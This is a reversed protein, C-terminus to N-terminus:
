NESRVPGTPTRIYEFVKIQPVSKSGLISVSQTSAHALKYDSLEELTVPSRQVETGIITFRGQKRSSIFANAETDNGFRKLDVIERFVSGDAMQRDEYQMVVCEYPAVSKGDFNFLRVVMSRYYEPYFVLLPVYKDDKKQWCIEYFDAEQRGGLNAISYFKDNPSALSSDIIIYKARWKALFGLAATQNQATFYMAEGLPNTSPNSSPIRHGIRTVWYGYDAWTVIGYTSDPYNFTQGPKPSEYLQYYYKADGFPEPTDKRVWDLVEIWANSPTALQGQAAGVAGLLATLAISILMIGVLVPVIIRRWQRNSRAATRNAKKRPLRPVQYKQNSFVQSAYAALWGTLLALCIAFYTDSRVMAFSALMIVVSWSAVYMYESKRERVCKYALIILGILGSYLVLGFQSWAAALTFKEGPFFLPKMEGVFNQQTKWTFIWSFGATATRFLDPFMIWAAGIAIVAVVALVVPFYAPKFRKAMMFNSLANIALPAAIMFALSLLTIKIRSLAIFILFAVLFCISIARSLYDTSYGRLHDSIFQILSYVFVLFVFLLAGRWTALYLGIFIGAMVAYHIHRTAQAWQGKPIMSYRFQQQDRIALIFFLSFCSTLFIEASHHDTNGLLSLFLWEGPMIAVLVAAVMGALRGILVKSIFYIPIVTLVALAPTVYAAITDIVQQTPAAGGFIKVVGALLYAFLYPFDETSFGGPFILYPDFSNLHPFNPILNDLIRMYFYADNTSMKIMQGDFISSYPLVIRLYASLLCTLTLLGVTPLCRLIAERNM